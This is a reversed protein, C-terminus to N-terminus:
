LGKYQYWIPPMHGEPITHKDQYWNGDMHLTVENETYQSTEKDM